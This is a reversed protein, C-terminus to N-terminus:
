LKSNATSTHFSDALATTELHSNSRHSQVVTARGRRWLHHHHQRGSSKAGKLLRRDPEIGGRSTSALILGRVSFSRLEVKYMYCCSAKEVTRVPEM